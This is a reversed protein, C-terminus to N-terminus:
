CREPCCDWLGHLNNNNSIQQLDAMSTQTTLLQTYVARTKGPLLAFRLPYMQDDIRSHITYIQHFQSPCTRDCYLTEANALDILNQSTAFTIIRNDDGDDFLLFEEGTTTPIWQGELIINQQTTPLKSTIKRRAWYRSSKVSPFTPLQEVTNKTDDNWDSNVYRKM